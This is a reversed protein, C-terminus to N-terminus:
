TVSDVTYSSTQTGKPRHSMEVHIPHMTCPTYQFQFNVKHIVYM